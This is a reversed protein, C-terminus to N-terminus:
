DFLNDKVLLESNIDSFKALSNFGEIISSDNLTYLFDCNTDIPSRDVKKFNLNLNKIYYNFSPECLWNPSISYKKNHVKTLKDIQLLVEKNHKDFDWTKTHTFNIGIFLNYILTTAIALGLLLTLAKHKTYTYIYNLLTFLFISLVPIYFLSTREYPLKAGFLMKETFIGLFTLLVLITPIYFNNNKKKNKVFVLVAFIFAALLLILFSYSLLKYNNTNFYFSSYFFSNFSELLSNAGYYLQNQRNLFLLWKINEVLPVITFILVAFFYYYHKKPNSNNKFYFWFKILFILIVSILFNIANLNSYTAFCAFLSAFIFDSLLLKFSVTYIGSRILFYSSIMIFSIALGYGRALSFFELLFPNFLTLAIFFLSLIFHRSLKLFKFLAISFVIFALINPLRLALESNGFLSNTTRMLLTNLLHNNATHKWSNDGTIITYSLSEDHTFSLTTARTILYVLIVLSLIILFVQSFSLKNKM